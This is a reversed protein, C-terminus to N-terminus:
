GRPANRELWERVAHAVIDQQTCPAEGRLKREMAVRLLASPLEAPLRFTMSVPARREVPLPSHGLALALSEPAGVSVAVPPLRARFDPVPEPPPAAALPTGAAGAAVFAAAETSLNVSHLAQSMTRKPNM